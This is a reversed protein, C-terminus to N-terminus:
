RLREVLGAYVPMKLCQPAYDPCTDGISDLVDHTEALAQDPAVGPPPDERAVAIARERALPDVRDKIWGHEECECTAGAEQLVSIAWGRRSRITPRRGQVDADLTSRGLRIRDTRGENWSAICLQLDFIRPRVDKGSELRSHFTWPHM